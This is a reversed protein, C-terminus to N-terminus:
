NLTWTEKPSIVSEIKNATKIIEEPLLYIAVSLATIATLFFFFCFSASPSLQVFTKDM